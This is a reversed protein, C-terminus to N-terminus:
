AVDTAPENNLSRQTNIARTFSDLAEAPRKLGRQLRGMETLAAATFAVLAPLIAPLMPIKAEPGKAVIVFRVVPTM